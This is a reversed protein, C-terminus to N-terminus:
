EKCDNNYVRIAKNLYNYKGEKKKLGKYGDDIIQMSLPCNSVINKIDQVSTIKQIDGNEGPQIYYTYYTNGYYPNYRADHMQDYSMTTSLDIESVYVNVKGHIIRKGYIDELKSYGNLRLREYYVGQLLYGKIETIPYKVGEISFTNSTLAGSKYGFNKDYKFSVKTGDNKVYFSTDAAYDNEVSLKSDNNTIYPSVTYVSNSNAGMKALCSSFLTALFLLPILIKKM